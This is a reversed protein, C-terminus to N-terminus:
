NNKSAIKVLADKVGTITANNEILELLEKFGAGAPVVAEEEMRLLDVISVHVNNVKEKMVLEQTDVKLYDIIRNISPTIKAKILRNIEQWEEDGSDRGESLLINKLSNKNITKFNRFDVGGLPGGQVAVLSEPTEQEILSPIKAPKFESVIPSSAASYKYENLVVSLDATSGRSYVSEHPYSIQMPFIFPQDAPFNEEIIKYMGLYFKRLEEKHAVTLESEEAMNKLRAELYTYINEGESLMILPIIIDPFMKLPFNGPTGNSFLYRHIKDFMNLYEIFRTTDKFSAVLIGTSVIMQRKKTNGLDYWGGVIKRELWNNIKGIKFKDYYKSIHSKGDLILLGLGQRVMQELSSWSGFITLNDTFERVPGLYVGDANLHAIGCRNQKKLAQMIRYGNALALQFANLSRGHFYLENNFFPETIWDVRPHEANVVIIRKIKKQLQKPAFMLEKKNLCVASKDQFLTDLFDSFTPQFKFCSYSKILGAGSGNLLKGDLDTDNSIAFVPVNPRVLGNLSDKLLDFRDLYAGTMVLIADASAEQSLDLESSLGDIIDETAENLMQQKTNSAKVSPFYRHLIEEYQDIKSHLGQFKRSEDEWGKKIFRWSFYTSIGFGMLSSTFVHFLYWFVGGVTFSAVLAPLSVFATFIGFGIGVYLPVLRTMEKRILWQRAIGLKSPKIKQYYDNVAVKYENENRPVQYLYPIIQNGRSYIKKMLYELNEKATIGIDEIGWVKRWWGVSKKKTLKYNARSIHMDAMCEIALLYDSFYRLVEICEQAYISIKNKGSYDGAIIVNIIKDITNQMLNIIEETQFARSELDIGNQALSLPILNILVYSQRLIQSIEAEFFQDHLLLIEWEKIAAKMKPAVNGNPYASEHRTLFSTQSGVQQNKLGTTLDFSNLKSINFGGTDLRPPRPPEGGSNLYINDTDVEALLDPKGRFVKLYFLLFLGAFISFGGLVAATIPIWYQIKVMVMIDSIKAYDQPGFKKLLNSYVDNILWVNKTEQKLEKSLIDQLNKVLIPRLESEKGIANVADFAVQGVLGWNEGQGILALLDYSYDERILTLLEHMLMSNRFKLALTQASNITFIKVLNNEGKSFLKTLLEVARPDGSTGLVIAVNARVFPHTHKNLVEKLFPIRLDQENLPSEFQSLSWASAAVVFEDDDQLGATLALLARIDKMQGLKIAAAIPVQYNAHTRSVLEKIVTDFDSSFGLREWEKESASFTQNYSEWQFVLAKRDINNNLQFFNGDKTYKMILPKMSQRVPKFHMKLLLKGFEEFSLKELISMPIVDDYGLKGQNFRTTLAIRLEDVAADQINELAWGVAKALVSREHEKESDQGEIVPYIEQIKYYAQLLTRAALPDAAKGLAVIKFLREQFNIETSHLGRSLLDVDVNTNPVHYMSQSNIKSYVFSAAIRVSEDPNKLDERIARLVFPDISLDDGSNGLQLLKQVGGWSSAESIWRQIEKQVIEPMVNSVAAKSALVTDQANDSTPNVEQASSQNSSVVSVPVSEVIPSAPTFFRSSGPGAEVRRIKTQKVASEITKRVSSVVPGLSKGQEPLSQAQAPEKPSVSAPKLKSTIPEKAMLPTEKFVPNRLVSNNVNAQVAIKEERVIVGQAPRSSKSNIKQVPRINGRENVPLIKKSAKRSQMLGLLYRINDVKDPNQDKFSRSLEDKLLRNLLEITYEKRFFLADLIANQAKAISPNAALADPGFDLKEIFVSVLADIISNDPNRNFLEVAADVAVLILSPDGVKQLIGAMPDVAEISRVKGLSRIAQQRIKYNSNSTAIKAFGNALADSFANNQAVASLENAADITTQLLFPDRLTQLLGALPEIAEVSASKGLAQIAMKKIEHPQNSNAIKALAKIMPNQGNQNIMGMGNSNIKAVAAIARGVIVANPESNILTLLQETATIHATGAFVKGMEDIAGIRTGLDEEVNFIRSTYSSINTYTSVVTPAPLNQTLGAKNAKNGEILSGSLEQFVDPTVLGQLLSLIQNASVYDNREKKEQFLVLLRKLSGPSQSLAETAKERILAYRSYDQPNAPTRVVLNIIGDILLPDDTKSLVGKAVTLAQIYVDYDTESSLIRLLPQTLAGGENTFDNLAQTAVILVLQHKSSALTASIAQLADADGIARLTDILYAVVIWDENSAANKLAKVISGEKGTYVFQKSAVINRLARAAAAKVTPHSDGLAAILVRTSASNGTKALADAALIRHASSTRDFLLIRSLSDSNNQNVLNTIEEALAPNDKAVKEITKLHQEEVDKLATLQKILLDDQAPTIIHFLAQCIRPDLGKIDSEIEAREIKLHSVLYKFVPLYNYNIVEYKNPLDQRAQIHQLAKIFNMVVQRRSQDSSGALATLGQSINGSVKSDLAYLIEDESTDFILKELTQIVPLIVALSNRNLAAESAAAIVYPNTEHELLNLIPQIVRPDDSTALAAVVYYRVIWEKDNIAMALTKIRIDQDTGILINHSDNYQSLAWAAAARVYPDKDQGLADVLDEVIARETWSSEVAPRMKGLAWAAAVRNSPETENHLALLHVVGSKLFDLIGGVTVEANFSPNTSGSLPSVLKLLAGPTLSGWKSDDYQRLVSRLYRVKSINLTEGMRVIEYYKDIKENKPMDKLFQRDIPIFVQLNVGAAAPQIAEAQTDVRSVDSTINAKLPFMQLVAPNKQGAPFSACGTFAAAILVTLLVSMVAQKKFFSSKPRQSILADKLAPIDEVIKMYVANEIKLLVENYDINKEYLLRLYNDDDFQKYESWAVELKNITFDIFVNQYELSKEDLFNSLNVNLDLHGELVTNELVSRLNFDQTVKSIKKALLEKDALLHEIKGEVGLRIVALEENNALRDQEADHAVEVVFDVLGKIFQADVIDLDLAEGIGRILEKECLSFVRSIKEQTTVKPNDELWQSYATKLVPMWLLDKPNDQWGIKSPFNSMPVAQKVVPRGAGIMEAHASIRSDHAGPLPAPPVFQDQPQVNLQSIERRLLRVQDTLVKVQESLADIQSDKKVILKKIKNMKYSALLYGIGISIGSVALIPLLIPSSSSYSEQRFSEATQRLWWFDEKLSSKQTRLEHIRKRGSHIEETTKEVRFVLDNVSDNKNLTLLNSDPDVMQSQFKLLEEEDILSAEAGQAVEEKDKSLHQTLQIEQSTVPWTVKVQRQMDRTNIEALIAYDPLFPQQQPAANQILKAQTNGSSLILSEFRIGGSFYSRISQGYPTYVKEQLNFEGKKFSKKYTDFYTNASWPEQSILGSLEKKNILWSYYGGKGYFRKKFWQALILSYYVQRLQAYRKATNVEYTLKPMILLRSLEAAYENLVNFRKDKFNSGLAGKLYDAELMVKLNAKYIYANEQTESLIIEGPVIWPRTITPITVNEYGFLEEAKKYLKEWYEKGIKTAPNVFQAADKKLQLDAELLVKGLDTQALLPDIINLAADPRLNVWFIENPLTIGVLFYDFIAKTTNELPFNNDSALSTGKDMLIKFDNSQNNYSLYRLHVPRFSESQTNGPSALFHQSIDVVANTAAFGSQEALLSICLLFAVFRIFKRPKSEKSKIFFNM